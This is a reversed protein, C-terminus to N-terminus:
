PVVTESLTIELDTTAPALCTTADCAQFSVRVSVTVPGHDKGVNFAVPVVGIALGIRSYDADTM